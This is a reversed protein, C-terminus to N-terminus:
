VSELMTSLTKPNPKDTQRDDVTQESEYIHINLNGHIKEINNVNVTCHETNFIFLAANIARKCHWM